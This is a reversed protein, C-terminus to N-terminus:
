LRIAFGGLRQETTWFRRSKSAGGNRVRLLTRQRTVGDFEGVMSFLLEVCIMFTDGQPDGDRGSRVVM